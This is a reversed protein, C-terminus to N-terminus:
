IDLNLNPAATPASPQTTNTDHTVTPTLNAFVLGVPARPLQLPQTTSPRHYNGQTGFRIPEAKTSTGTTVHSSTASSVGTTKTEQSFSSAQSHLYAVASAPTTMTVSHHSISGSLQNRLVAMKKPISEDHNPKADLYKQYWKLALPIDKPIGDGEEHMMALYRIGEPYGAQAAISFLHFAKAPNPAVGISPTGAKGYFAGLKAHAAIHGAKVAREFAEKAKLLEGSKKYAVGLNFDAEAEKNHMAAKTALHAKIEAQGQKLELLTQENKEMVVQLKTLLEALEEQDAAGDQRDQERDIIMCVTTVGLATNLTLSAQQLQNTADDFKEQIDKATVFKKIRAFTNGKASHASILGQCIKLREELTQLAPRYIHANPNEDRLNLSKIANALDTIRTALTKCRKKNATAVEAQAKIAIAITYISQLVDTIM